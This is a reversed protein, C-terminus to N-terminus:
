EERLEAIVAEYVERGISYQALHQWDEEMDKFFESKDEWLELSRRYCAQAAEREGLALYVHGLNRNSYDDQGNSLILCEELAIKADSLNGIILYNYGLNNWTTKNNPNYEVCKKFCTIVETHMEKQYWVMGLCFWAEHKDNKYELAKNLYKIAQDYNNIEFSYRGLAYWFDSLDPQKELLAFNGQSIKNYLEPNNSLMNFLAPTTNEIAKYLENKKFSGNLLFQKVFAATQENDIFHNLLELNEVNDKTTENGSFIFNLSSKNLSALEHGETEKSLSFFEEHNDKFLNITQKIFLTLQKIEQQEILDQSLINEFLTDLLQLGRKERVEYIAQCIQLGWGELILDGNCAAANRFTEGWKIAIKKPAKIFAEVFGNIGSSLYKKPEAALRHMLSELELNIWDNDDWTKEPPLGFNNMQQAFHDALRQHLSSFEKPSRQRIHRMMMERVVTHYVWADGRKQVFPMRLLWDFLADADEGPATLAALVDRNFSRPLAAHLALSRKAPDDVWKLFREVALDSPDGPAADGPTVEALFSLLVPLRGSLHLIDSVLAPDAICKRTLYDRAEEENFPEVSVPQTIDFNGSWANPHLPERGAVVLVFQLPLKEEGLLRRLWADLDKGAAEYNDVFLIIQRQEDLDALEELLLPTLVEEPELVLRVEDKNTLKKKVFSAWEGLQEGAADEDVFEALAGLGPVKKAERLGIKVATKGFFSFFGKPADPDAELQQKQQRYLKHQKELKDLPADQTKMQAVIEGLLQVPEIASDSLNPRVDVYVAYAKKGAALERYRELLTSKGVGGQGFVNFIFHFGPHEPSRDLNTQFLELQRERGVFTVTKRQRLIEKRTLRNSM